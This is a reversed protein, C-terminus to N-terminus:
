NPMREKQNLMNKFKERGKKRIAKGKGDQQISALLQVPLGGTGSLPDGSSYAPCGTECTGGLPQHNGNLALM